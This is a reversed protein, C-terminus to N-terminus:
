RSVGLIEAIQEQSLQHKQRASRLQEGIIM